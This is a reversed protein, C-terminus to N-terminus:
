LSMAKTEEGRRDAGVCFGSCCFSNSERRDKLAIENECLSVYEDGEMSLPWGIHEFFYPTHRHQLLSCFFLLHVGVWHM